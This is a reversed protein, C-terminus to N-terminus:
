GIRKSAKVRGYIALLGGFSAAVGQLLGVASVADDASLAYGALSFGGGVLATMGGWVAKSTLFSKTGNM